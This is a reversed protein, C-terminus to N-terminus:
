SSYCTLVVDIAFNYMKNMFNMILLLATSDIILEPCNQLSWNAIIRDGGTKLM